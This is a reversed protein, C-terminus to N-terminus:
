DICIKLHALRGALQLNPIKGIFLNRVLPHVSTLSEIPILEPFKRSLTALNQDLVKSVQSVVTGNTTKNGVMSRTIDTEITRNKGTTFDGEVICNTSTRHLAQGFPSKPLLLLAIVEVLFFRCLGKRPTNQKLLMRDSIKALFIKIAKKFCIQRKM